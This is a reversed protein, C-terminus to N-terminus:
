WCPWAVSHASREPSLHLNRRRLLSLSVLYTWIPPLKTFTRSSLAHFRPHNSSMWATFTQLCLALLYTQGDAEFSIIPMRHSVRLLTFISSQKKKVKRPLFTGMDNEVDNAKQSGRGLRQEVLKPLHPVIQIKQAHRIFCVPLHQWKQRGREFLFHFVNDLTSSYHSPYTHYSWFAKHKGHPIAGEHM